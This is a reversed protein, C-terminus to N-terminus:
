RATPERLAIMLGILKPVHKRSCGDVKSFSNQSLGAARLHPVVARVWRTKSSGSDVGSSRCAKVEFCNLCDRMDCNNHLAVAPTVVFRQQGQSDQLQQQTM